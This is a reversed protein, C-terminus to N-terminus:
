SRLIRIMTTMMAILVSCHLKIQPLMTAIAIAIVVTVIVRHAQAIGMAMLKPKRQSKKESKVQRKKENRIKNESINAKETFEQQGTAWEKEM